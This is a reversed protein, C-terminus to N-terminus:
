RKRVIYTRNIGCQGNACGGFAPQVTAPKPTATVLRGQKPEYRYVGPKKWLVQESEAPVCLIAHTAEAAISEKAAIAKSQGVLVVLPKGSAISLRRAEAYNAVAGVTSGDSEEVPMMGIVQPTYNECDDCECEACRCPDCDKCVGAPPGFMSDSPPGFMSTEQAEVSVCLLMLALLPRM